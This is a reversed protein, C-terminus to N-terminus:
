EAVAAGNRAITSADVVFVIGKAEPLHEKFQDRIRPHGPIDLLHLTRPKKESSPLTVFSTNTQLSTHSPLAREYVLQPSLLSTPLLCVSYQAVTSVATFISTKGADTPGTLLVSTGNVSSKRRRALVIVIISCHDVRIYELSKLCLGLTFLVAAAFSGLVSASLPINLLASPVKSQVMLSTKGLSSLSTVPPADPPVTTFSEVILATTPSEPTDLTPDTLKDQADITSVEM